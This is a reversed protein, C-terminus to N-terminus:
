RLKGGCSACYRDGAVVPKGCSPCFGGARGAHRRKRKGSGGGRRANEAGDGRLFLFWYAVAGALAAALMGAGVRYWRAAGTGSDTTLEPLVPRAPPTISEASLADGERVYELEVVREQGAAVAGLELTHHMLGDAGPMPGPSPPLTRMEVTDAPEQVDIFFARLARDGPWAYRFRRRSGERELAPDYYEVQLRRNRASITLLAWDGQVEREYPAVVLDGAPEADAVANPQGASAPIRVQVSAPLPASAPLTIRYIVLVSPRDYEPWLSVELREWPAERTELAEQSTAAVPMLTLAVVPLTGWATLRRM